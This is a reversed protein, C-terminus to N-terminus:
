HLLSKEKLLLPQPPKATLANGEFASPTPRFGSLSIHFAWHTKSKFARWFHREVRITRERSRARTEDATLPLSGFQNNQVAIFASLSYHRDLGVMCM